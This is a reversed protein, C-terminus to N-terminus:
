KTAIPMERSKVTVTALTAVLAPNPALPSSTLWALAQDVSKHSVPITLELNTPSLALVLTAFDMWTQATAASALDLTMAVCSLFVFVDMLWLQLLVERKAFRNLTLSPVAVPPTTTAIICKDLRNCDISKLNRAAVESRLLNLWTLPNNTLEPPTNKIFKACCCRCTHCPLVDPLMRVLKIWASRMKEDAGQMRRGIAFLVSWARFGWVDPDIWRVVEMMASM